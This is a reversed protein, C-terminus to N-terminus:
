ECRYKEGQEADWQGHVQLTMAFLLVVAWCVCIWLFVYVLLIALVTLSVLLLVNGGDSKPTVVPAALESVSREHASLVEQPQLTAQENCSRQQSCDNLSTDVEALTKLRDRTWARRIGDM